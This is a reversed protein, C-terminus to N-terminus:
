VGGECRDGAEDAEAEGSTLRREDKWDPERGDRGREAEYRLLCRRVGDTEATLSPDERGRVGWPM